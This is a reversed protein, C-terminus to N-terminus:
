HHPFSFSHSKVVQPIDYEQEYTFVLSAHTAHEWEEEEAPHKQHL